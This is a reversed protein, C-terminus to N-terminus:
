FDRSPHRRKLHQLRDSEATKAHKRALDSGPAATSRKLRRRKQAASRMAKRSVHLDAAPPPELNAPAVAAANAAAGGSVGGDDGPAAPKCGSIVSIVGNAGQGLTV